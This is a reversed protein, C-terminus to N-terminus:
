SHVTDNTYNERISDCIEAHFVHSSAFRPYVNVWFGMMSLTTNKVPAASKKFFVGYKQLIEWVGM